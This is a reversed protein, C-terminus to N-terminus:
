NWVKVQPWIENLPLKLGRCLYITFHEETMAYPQGVTGAAEVQTCLKEARTQNFGLLIITNIDHNGPGWLYFNQHASIVPPLGFKPGFFDVAGAEGYNSAWIVTKNQEDTTLSHYVEATNAVMEPWGFRDGFYQPLPGSHAVETKPVQLGFLKQYQILTQPSLIPLVIPAFVLGSLTLITLFSVKIAKSFKRESLLKEWALGGGAFLIPYVPFMYYVKGKLAIVIITLFLYALGLFRYQKGKKHFLFYWLGLLWVLVTPPLLELVQEGVFAQPSLVTNKGLLQVNRLDQLTAWQHQYEWALNPMMILFALLSGLLFWKSLFLRRHKTFLLGTLLALGFFVMSDKNLFGFGAIIGFGIWYKPNQRNIVLILFYTCGLWFLPEFANMSMYSNMSLIGSAIFVSLCALTTAFRKGGLEKTILTTLYIEAASALAPLFRLALLSDGLVYRNLRVLWAIMPAFDVYGLALHKSASLYYLEDRFYGYGNATLLHVLVAAAGFYFGIWKPTIFRQFISEISPNQM